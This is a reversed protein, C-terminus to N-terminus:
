EEEKKNSKKKSSKKEVLVQKEKVEKRRKDEKELMASLLESGVIYLIPIVVFIFLGYKSSVVGYIFSLLVAKHVVVGYIQDEYVVPDEIINAIGKTHFVLNGDVDKEIDVVEHTVVKGDFSGSSGLYSITDGIKIDEPAVEKSILVDGVEYKPVMSGTAVTFMRYNFLAIENNSFRQLCVVLLFLVVFVTVVVNLITKIISLVKKM